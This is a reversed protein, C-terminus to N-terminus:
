APVSGKGFGMPSPFVEGLDVTVREIVTDDEESRRSPGDAGKLLEMTMKNVAISDLLMEDLGELGTEDASEPDYNKPAKYGSVTHGLEKNARSRSRTSYTVPATSNWKSTYPRRRTKPTQIRPSPHRRRPGAPRRRSIVQNTPSASFRLPSSSAPSTTLPTLQEEGSEDETVLFNTFARTPVCATSMGIERDLDIEVSPEDYETNEGISVGDREQLALFQIDSWSVKVTTATTNLLHHHIFSYYIHSHKCWVERGSFRNIVSRDVDRGTFGGDELRSTAFRYVNNNIVTCLSFFPGHIKDILPSLKGLQHLRAAESQLFKTLRPARSDVGAKVTEASERTHTYFPTPDKSKDVLDKVVTHMGLVKADARYSKSRIEKYLLTM